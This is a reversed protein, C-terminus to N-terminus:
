SGADRMALLPKDCTAFRDALLADLHVDCVLFNRAKVAGNNVRLRPRALDVQRSGM